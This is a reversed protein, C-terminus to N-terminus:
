RGFLQETERSTTAVGGLGRDRCRRLAEVICDVATRTSEPNNLDAVIGMAGNQLRFSLSTGTWNVIPMFNYCIM